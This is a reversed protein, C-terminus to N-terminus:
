DQKLGLEAVSRRAEEIQQMAFRQYDESSLYFLEQDLNAMAAAYSPEELGKKFADHLVKVIQVEMGKPGAIGFPSNSVMDIGIERLTPVSPWNKTRMAGWTVLLRFRGANVLQAWGSSDAVAHIHGGLLANMTDANGKFPVHTWKIGQRKAIQEMTIHLSTGAGPTGYNIKGPNTKADDLFDQFTKWPADDRVVVGFTYGSVGIIYTFDASPDFTTKTMFPFRFVTIPIQTITYCDPKASAAMQGPALTGSGGPRNEIVIPQGLHKETASALARMGVDTSGGAPWPVILTVPRVPFNQAQAAGIWAAFGAALVTGFVSCKM